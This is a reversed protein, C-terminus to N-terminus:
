GGPARARTERRLDAREVHRHRQALRQGVGHQAAVGLIRGLRHVNAHHDVAPSTMSTVSSPAPEIELAARLVRRRGVVDHALVPRPRNRMRRSMSRTSRYVSACPRRAVDDAEGDLARRGHVARSWAPCRATLSCSRSPDHEGREVIGCLARGGDPHLRRRRPRQAGPPRAPGARGGRRGRRCGAARVRAARSRSSGVPRWSIARTGGAFRAQSTM